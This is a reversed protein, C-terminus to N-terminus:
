HNEASESELPEDIDADGETQEDGEEADGELQELRAKMIRTNEVQEVTIKLNEYTIQEGEEVLRGARNFIFGALTEFEEGEPIDIDLAENVDEINVEGRVM